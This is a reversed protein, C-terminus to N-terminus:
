KDENPFHPFNRGRKEWKERLGKMKGQWEKIETASANRNGAFVESIMGDYKAYTSKDRNYNHQEAISNNKLSEHSGSSRNDADGSGVSVNSAYYNGKSGNQINAAASIGSEVTNLLNNLADSMVAKYNQRAQSVIQSYERSSSIQVIEADTYKECCWNGDNEVYVGIGIREGRAFNSICVDGNRFIIAGFGTPYDEEFEGLFYAGDLSVSSFYKEIVDDDPYRETPLDDNFKGSYVVEGGKGYCTGKGNKLNDKFKGVYVVAGPCNGIEDDPASIMLGYGQIKKDSVDGIYICGNKLKLVGLGTIEGKLMQGKYIGYKNKEAGSRFFDEIDLQSYEIQAQLQLSL